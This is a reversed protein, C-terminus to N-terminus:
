GTKAMFSGQELIRSEINKRKNEFKLSPIM